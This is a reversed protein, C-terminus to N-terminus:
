RPSIRRDTVSQIKKAYMNMDSRIKTEFLTETKPNFEAFGCAVQVPFGFESNSLQAELSMICKEIQETTKNKAILCFEDGGIRYCEAIDEFASLITKSVFILVKDGTAHGFTDNIQKFRNIDIDVLIISQYKNIKEQLQKMDEDYSHRNSVKTLADTYALSKYLNNKLRESFQERISYSFSIVAFIGLFISGVIFYTSYLQPTIQTYYRILDLISGLCYFIFGFYFIKLSIYKLRFGSNCTIVFVITNLALMFHYLPLFVIFDAIGFLKFSIVLAYFLGMVSVTPLIIKTAHKWNSWIFLWLMPTQLFSCIYELNYMLVLNDSFFQFISNNCMLWISGTICFMSLFFLPYIRKIQMIIMVMTIILLVIGIALFISTFFFLFSNNVIPFYNPTVADNLYVEAIVSSDESILNEYQLHIQMGSSYNPLIVFARSNGPSWNNSDKPIMENEFIKESSIFASFRKLYINTDLLIKEYETFPVINYLDVTKCNPNILKYPLTSNSSTLIGDEYIEWGYNFNIQKSRPKAFFSNYSMSNLIVLVTAATCYLVLFSALIHKNKLIKKYLAKLIKM